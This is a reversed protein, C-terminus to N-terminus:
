LQGKFAADLLSAKLATLDNIKEQTSAELTRTREALSNLHDVIRKQEGIAPIPIDLNQLMTKTLAQRTAGGAGQFLLDNKFSPSIILYNLFVSNLMDKPRLISVHQNVRAPLYENPVVCSRAVSAGTINLLVDGSKVEVNSLLAAQTGDIYALGKEKFYADHVNLSRILSIGETKYSKQGGKPTAGSGIKSTLNSLKEIPNQSYAQQFVEDLASAFLAKSLELTQQLHTISADIRTFLADLKAVIRKQENLPPLPIQRKEMGGKTAHKMGVGNGQSKIDVSDLELLWYLYHKDIFNSTIIKWIHYHFIARPGEWIKPGFSASWAYLLDGEDCYKQQPLELDSYYWSRNSFFNGVRLVPVSGANLLEHKKYARGNILSAVEGLPRWEWGEPLEYLEQAV